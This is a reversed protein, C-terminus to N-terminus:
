WKIGFLKSMGMGMMVLSWIYQFYVGFNVFGLASLFGILGLLLMMGVEIKHRDDAIYSGASEVRAAGKKKKGAM